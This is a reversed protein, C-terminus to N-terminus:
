RFGSLFAQANKRLDGELIGSSVAVGACGTGIVFLLNGAKIGGIAIVPMRVSRVIQRLTEVGKPEGADKTMTPFVPGFGIYDAGGKEAELAQELSHTSIGIIRDGMIRRAERLPLDEQGLHVGEADVALAIDAHDNIILCANFRSTIERLILANRYIERRSREKDRYQIWSIGSELAATVPEAVDTWPPPPSGALLCVGLGRIDAREM